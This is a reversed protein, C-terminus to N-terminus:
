VAFRVMRTHLLLHGGLCGRHREELKEHAEVFSGAQDEIVNIPEYHNECLCPGDHNKMRECVRHCPWGNEDPLLCLRRCPVLPPWRRRRPERQRVNLLPMGELGALSPRQASRAGWNYKTFNLCAHWRSRPGFMCFSEGSTLGAQIAHFCLLLRKRVM